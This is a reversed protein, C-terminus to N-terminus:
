KEQALAFLEEESIDVWEWNLKENTKPHIGCYNRV